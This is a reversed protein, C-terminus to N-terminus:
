EAAEALYSQQPLPGKGEAFRDWAAAEDPDALHFGGFIGHRENRWEGLGALMGSETILFALSEEPLMTTNFRGRLLMAWTTFQARYALQATKQLGKGIKVMDERMEPQSGYIRILPLDCIAGSYAPMVRVMQADIWLGGLVKTREIGKDKHAASIICNKVGTAPFGYCERGSADKGMPYLSSIFDGEPDRAERGGRTAKAQKMLMALKAKHSWAHTIIPFDGVIWERFSAFESKRSLAQRLSVRRGMGARQERVADNPKYDQSLAAKEAATLNGEDRSDVKPALPHQEDAKKSGPVVKAKPRAM